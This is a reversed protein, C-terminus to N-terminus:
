ACSNRQSQLWRDVGMLNMDIHGQRVHDRFLDDCVGWPLSEERLVDRYRDHRDPMGVSNSIWEVQAAMSSVLQDLHANMDEVMGGHTLRFRKWPGARLLDITSGWQNLDLDPPPMPVTIWGTGPVRMAAADGTFLDGSELLHWAHHHKAHGPTEIAKFHLGAVEVIDGGVAPHVLDGRIPRLPGWLTDFREAYIRRASQELRSPDVLHRVGIPHVHVPVGEAALQWAGGAHDLHIHTLLLASLDAPGVGLRGLGEM